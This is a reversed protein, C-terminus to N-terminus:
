ALDTLSCSSCGGHEVASGGRVWAVRAVQVWPEWLLESAVLSKKSWMRHPARHCSMMSQSQDAEKGSMARRPRGRQIRRPRRAEAQQCAELGPAAESGWGHGSEPTM